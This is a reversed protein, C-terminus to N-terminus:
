QVRGFMYAANGNPLFKKMPLPTELAFGLLRAWKCGPIFQADVYLELRPLPLGDLFIRVIRTLPLMRSGMGEAIISWVVGRGPWTEDCVVGGICAVTEGDLVAYALGAEAQAMALAVREELPLEAQAEQPTMAYVHAATLPEIRM